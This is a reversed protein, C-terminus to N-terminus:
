VGLRGVLMIGVLIAQSSSELFNGIPRPTGGRLILIIFGGFGMANTRLNAASPEAFLAASFLAAPEFSSSIHICTYIYIYFWMYTYM